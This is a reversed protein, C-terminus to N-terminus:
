DWAFKCSTVAALECGIGASLFCFESVAELKEKDVKVGKVTRGDIPQATGLCRTCRFDPHPRLPDMIGNCKKHIRCLCGGCSIANSGVGKQCVGCPDKGFKRLLDLDLDSDTKGMNMQLDMKKIESKWTKLKVLLEEISMFGASIM